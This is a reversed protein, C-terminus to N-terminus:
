RVIMPNEAIAITSAGAAMAGLRCACAFLVGTKRTIMSEYAELTVPTQGLQLDIDLFQGEALLLTTSNLEASMAAALASRDRVLVREETFRGRDDLAANAQAIVHEEEEDAPGAIDEPEHTEIRLVPRAECGALAGLEEWPTGEGPLPFGDDVLLLETNTARLLASAYEDRDSDLRHGYVAEETPGCGFFASLGRAKSVAQHLGQTWRQRQRWFQALTCPVTTHVAARAQFRSRWSRQFLLFSTQVDESLVNQPFGGIGHLASTRFMSNAGIAPPNLGLRDRAAQIVHHFVLLELAAYRSVIGTEANIPIV